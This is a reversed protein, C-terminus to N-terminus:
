YWIYPQANDLRMSSQLIFFLVWSSVKWQLLYSTANWSGYMWWIISCEVIWLENPHVSKKKRRERQEIRRGGANSIGGAFEVKGSIACFKNCNDIHKKQAHKTREYVWRAALTHLSVCSIIIQMCVIHYVVFNKEGRNTREKMWVNNIMIDTIQRQFIM